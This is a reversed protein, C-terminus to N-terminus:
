RRTQADRRAQDQILKLQELLYEVMATVEKEADQLRSLANRMSKLTPYHSRRRVPRSLDRFEAVRPALTGKLQEQLDRSCKESLTLLQRLTMRRFSQDLVMFAEQCALRRADAAPYQGEINHHKNEATFIATPWVRMRGPFEHTDKQQRVNMAVPRRKVRDLLRVIQAQTQAIQDVVGQLWLRTDVPSAFMAPIADPSVVIM